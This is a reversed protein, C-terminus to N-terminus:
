SRQLHELDDLDKHRGSARKNKCLAALGIVPFPVRGGDPLALTENIREPWAEEFTVGDITSLLDIRNPPRGFQVIVGSELLEPATTIGPIKGEWFESLADFMRGVNDPDQRYWLDVDGTVRPYGHFIVAEGGVLLFDVGHRGFITVLEQVDPSFHEGKM